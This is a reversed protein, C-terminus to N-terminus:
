LNEEHAQAECEALAKAILAKGMQELQRSRTSMALSAYRAAHEPCMRGNMRLNKRAARIIGHRITESPHQRCWLDFQQDCPMEIKPLLITWFRKLTDHNTNM